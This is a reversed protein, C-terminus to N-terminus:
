EEHSVEEKSMLDSQQEDMKHEPLEMYITFGTDQNSKAYISGGYDRVIAHVQALGLGTGAQKNSGQYNLCFIHELEMPSIAPSTNKIILLIGHNSNALNLMVNGGKPTFKMVNDFLNKLITNIASLSLFIPSGDYTSTYTCTINKESLMKKFREASEAFIANLDITTTSSLPFDYLDSTVQSKEVQIRQLELKLQEIESSQEQNAETLEKIKTLYELKKDDEEPIVITDDDTKVLMLQYINLLSIFLLCFAALLYYTNLFAFLGVIFTFTNLIVIVMYKLSLNSQKM